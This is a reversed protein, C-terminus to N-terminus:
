QWSSSVDQRSTDSKSCEPTAESRQGPVTGQARRPDGRFEDRVCHPPLPRRLPRIPWGHQHRRRKAPRRSPTRSGTESAHRGKLLIAVAWINCINCRPLLTPCRDRRAAGAQSSPHDWCPAGEWAECTHGQTAPRLGTPGGCQARGTPDQVIKGARDRMHRFSPRFGGLLDDSGPHRCMRDPLTRSPVNQPQKVGRALYLARRVGHTAM